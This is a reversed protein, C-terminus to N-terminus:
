RKRTIHVVMTVVRRTGNFLERGIPMGDYVWVLMGVLFTGFAALLFPDPSGSTFEAIVWHAYEDVNEIFRERFGTDEFGDGSSQVPWLIRHTRPEGELFCWPIVDAALHVLYGIAFAIGVRFWGRSWAIWVVALSVPVAVFISHALAHGTDFIGLEWAMPKDVLDPLLSAFVVAVAERTTPPERYVAHAFLSFTLYGVLVHEWPMM